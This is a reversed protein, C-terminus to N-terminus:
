IKTSANILNGVRKKAIGRYIEFHKHASPGLSEFVHEFVSWLGDIDINSLDIDTEYGVHSNVNLNKVLALYYVSGGDNLREALDRISSGAFNFRNYTELIRRMTNWMVNIRKYTTAFELEDWLNEYINTVDDVARSIEIVQTGGATKVFKYVSSKEYYDKSKVPRLQTYFHMNHTLIFAQENPSSMKKMFEQLESIILYQSADDNSDVPDDFIVIREAEPNEAKDSDLNNLFWLFAVLNQEGKSLKDVSRYNGDHGKIQYQGRLGDNDKVAVYELSFSENGLSKLARNIEKAAKEEDNLEAKLDSIKVNLDRIHGKIMELEDEQESFIKESNEKEIKAKILEPKQIAKLMLHRELREKADEKEKDLLETIEDQKNKLKNFLSIVPVEDPLVIDVASLPSFKQAQKEELSQELQNVIKLTQDQLKKLEANFENTEDSLKSYIENEDIFEFNQIQYKINFIQNRLDAIKTDLQNIGKNFYSEIKAIHDSSVLNGCFLCKVLEHNKPQHYQLGAKVWDEEDINLHLETTQTISTDRIENVEHVLNKIRSFTGFSRSLGPLKNTSMMKKLSIIEKESLNHEPSQENAEYKKLATRNMTRRSKLTNFITKAETSYLENLAENKSKM